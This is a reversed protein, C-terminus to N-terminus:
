EGFFFGGAWRIKWWELSFFLFFSADHTSYCRLCYLSTSDTNLEFHISFFIFPWSSSVFFFYMVNVIAKGRCPIIHCLFTVYTSNIWKERTKKIGFRPQSSFSVAVSGLVLSSGAPGLTMSLSCNRSNRDDGLRFRSLISKGAKCEHFKM